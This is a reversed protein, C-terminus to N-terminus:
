GEPLNKEMTIEHGGSVIEFGKKVYLKRAPVNYEMVKLYLKSIGLVKACHVMEDVMQGGIGQGRLFKNGIYGWYEGEKYEAKGVSIHKIGCAGSPVGDVELGRVLCKDPNSRFYEVWIKQKELDFEPLNILFRLEEDNLWERSKEVFREDFDVFRVNRDVDEEM